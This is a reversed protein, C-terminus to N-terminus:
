TKFVNDSKKFLFKGLINKRRWLKAMLHYVGIPLMVEKTRNGRVLIMTGYLNGKVYSFGVCGRIMKKIKRRILHCRM